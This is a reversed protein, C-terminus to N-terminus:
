NKWYLFLRLSITLFFWRKKYCEEKTLQLVVYEGLGFYKLEEPVQEEKGQYIQFNKIYGNQDALYWIKYGRKIPKM